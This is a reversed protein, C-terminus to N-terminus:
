INSNQTTPKGMIQRGRFYLLFEKEDDVLGTFRIFRVIIKNTIKVVVWIVLPITLIPAVMVLIISYLKDFIDQTGNDIMLQLKDRIQGDTMNKWNTSLLEEKSRDVFSDVETKVTQNFFSDDGAMIYDIVISWGDLLPTIYYDLVLVIATLLFAFTVALALGLEATERRSYNTTFPNKM